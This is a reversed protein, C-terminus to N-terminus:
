GFTPRQNPVFPTRHGGFNSSTNAARSPARSVIVRDLVNSPRGSSSPPIFSRNSPAHRESHIVFATQSPNAQPLNMNNNRPATFTRNSELHAASPFPTPQQQRAPLHSPPPMQIRSSESSISSQPALHQLGATTPLSQM